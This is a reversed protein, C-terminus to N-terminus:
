NTPCLAGEESNRSTIERTPPGSGQQLTLGDGRTRNDLSLSPSCEVLFTYHGEM